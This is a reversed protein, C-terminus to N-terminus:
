FASEQVCISRDPTCFSAGTAMQHHVDFLKSSIMSWIIPSNTSGQGTGYIPLADSHQYHSESVGLSTKIQFQAHQLMSAHLRTINPHLGHFRGLLSAVSPIIRDYCSAADNDFNVLAKRSLRSIDYKLEEAYPLYAAEHGKRGGYQGDNIRHHAEASAFM